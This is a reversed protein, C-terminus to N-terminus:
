VNETEKTLQEAIQKFIEWLMDGFVWKDLKNKTNRFAAKLVCVLGWDLRLCVPFSDDSREHEFLMGEVREFMGEVPEFKEDLTEFTEEIPEKKMELVGLFFTLHQPRYVLRVYSQNLSFLSISFAQPQKNLIGWLENM